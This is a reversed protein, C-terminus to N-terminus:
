IQSEILTQIEAQINELTYIAEFNVDLDTTNDLAETIRSFASELNHIYVRELTTKTTMKNRIITQM